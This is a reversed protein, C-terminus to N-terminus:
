KFRTWYSTRGILSFGVYGRLKLVNTNNEDEFEAYCSYENGSKPDYITGDEWEDDDWELDKLVELGMVKRSRLKEDPNKDDLNPQTTSGDEFESELWVIKGYYKDNRKTVEIRSTKEQNWWIGLIADPTLKAPANFGSALVGISLLAIMLVNKGM